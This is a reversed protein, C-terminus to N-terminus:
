ANPAWVGPSTQHHTSAMLRHFQVNLQRVTRRLSEADKAKLPRTRDGGVYLSEDLNNLIDEWMILHLGFNSYRTLGSGGKTAEYISGMLNRLLVRTLDATHANLEAIREADREPHLRALVRRVATLRAFERTRMIGSVGGTVKFFDVFLDLKNLAGPSSNIKAILSSVHQAHRGYYKDRVLDYAAPLTIGKEKALQEALARMEELNSSITLYEQHNRTVERLAADGSGLQLSFADSGLAAGLVEM